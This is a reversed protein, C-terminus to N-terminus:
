TKANNIDQKLEDMSFPEFGAQEIELLRQDVKGMQGVERSLLLRIFASLSLGLFRAKRESRYKLDEAITINLRSM